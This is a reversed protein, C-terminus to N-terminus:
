PKQLRDLRKEIRDFGNALDGRLDAKLERVHEKTAYQSAAYLYAGGLSAFAALIGAVVAKLIARTVLHREECSPNVAHHEGARKVAHREGTDRKVADMALGKTLTKAFM